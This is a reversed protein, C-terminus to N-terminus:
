KRHNPVFCAYYEPLCRKGLIVSQKDNEFSTDKMATRELFLFLFKSTDKVKNLISFRPINSKIQRGNLCDASLHVEVITMGQYFDHVQCESCITM